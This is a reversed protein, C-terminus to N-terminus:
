DNQNVWLTNNSLVVNFFECLLLEAESAHDENKFRLLLDNDFTELSLLDNFDNQEFVEKVKALTTEFLQLDFTSM